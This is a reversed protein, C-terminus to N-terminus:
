AADVDIVEGESSPAPIPEGFAHAIMDRVQRYLRRDATSPDMGEAAFVADTFERVDAQPKERLRTCDAPPLCFGLQVCLETLLVDVEKESLMPARSSCPGSVDLWRTFVEELQSRSIGLHTELESDRDHPYDLLNDLAGGVAARIEPDVSAGESWRVACRRLESRDMGFLTHFEWEEFFPGEACATLARHILDRDDGRM